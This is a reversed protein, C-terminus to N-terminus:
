SIVPKNLTPLKLLYLKNLVDYLANVHLQCYIRGDKGRFINESEPNFPQDFDSGDIAVM